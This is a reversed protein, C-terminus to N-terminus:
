KPPASDRVWASEECEPPNSSRPPTIRAKMCKLASSTYADDTLPLTPVPCKNAQMQILTAQLLNSYAVKQLLRNTERAASDDGVGSVRYYSLSKVNDEVTQALADCFSVPKTQAAAAGCWVLAAAMVFRKM